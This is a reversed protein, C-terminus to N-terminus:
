KSALAENLRTILWLRNYLYSEGNKFRSYLMEVENKNVVDNDMFLLDEIYPKLDSQMWKALPIGFGWKPRDFYEKPIYDFLLRKLIYKHEGNRFKLNSNINLAFEVIRYDLLPVRTELAYQMSARDVKVLLDDPLYYKLDFLAQEEMGNLKRQLSRHSENFLLEQSVSPKIYSELEREAFLYQEQSFIHSKLRKPNTVNLLESVRKMRNNGHSLAASIPTKFLNFLSSNMRNAWKYAGYGMFLEDGGDGSLTMTVHQKALKSVLMTPIASSDGYPEDYVSFLGPMLEMADKETVVFEHHNTGLYNAVKRAYPAENVFSKDEFGISFTNLSAGVISKAVATVLSSDIGGSLFTGFPVDSILRYRVSSELLSKLQKKVETPDSFIDSDINDYISWYPEIKFDGKVFKGKSGTPFKHIEKYFSLPAPIYGLYLFQSVSQYNITLKERIFDLSKLSKLESAFAFTGKDHFYYIPKIGIRDRFLTLSGTNKDFIAIAFMGNLRHVFDDGWVSYAELIVETDSNTHWNTEGYPIFRPHAILQDRIEQFNYIEGNFVLAYRKNHSVMPQNAADSLDIISLRRHGLGCNQEYWYGGADPGRHYQVDTMKILDERNLQQSVFGSIGCM